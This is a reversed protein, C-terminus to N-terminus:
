KIKVTKTAWKKGYVTKGNVKSITRVRFTYKKGKKLKKSTVKVKKSAKALTSWKKASKLKYQIQYATAGKTKKFSVTAKKKKSTVKLGKVTMKQAAKKQAAIKAAKDAAAKAHADAKAKAKEAAAVAENLAKTAAQIEEATAGEKALVEDLAKKAAEVAAAEKAPYSKSDIKAAAEEAAKAKEAVSEATEKLSKSDITILRNFWNGSGAAFM